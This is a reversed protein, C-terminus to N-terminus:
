EFIEEMQRAMEESGLDDILQEMLALQNSRFALTEKLEKNEKYFKDNVEALSDMEEICSNYKAKLRTNEDNLENLLNHIERPSLGKYENEKDWIRGGTYIFRKDETKNPIGKSWDHFEYYPCNTEGFFAEYETHGEGCWFDYGIGRTYKCDKCFRKNETM